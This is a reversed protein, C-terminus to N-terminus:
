KTMTDEVIAIEDATLDYLGYVLSDIQRDISEIERTILHKERDTKALSMHKHLSLMESVLIVM